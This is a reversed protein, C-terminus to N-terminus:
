ESLAVYIIVYISKINKNVTNNNCNTNNCEIKNSQNLVNLKEAMEMIIM